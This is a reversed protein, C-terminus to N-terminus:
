ELVKPQDLYAQISTSLVNVLDTTRVLHDKVLIKWVDFCLNVLFPNQTFTRQPASPCQPSRKKPKKRRRRKSPHAGMVLHHCFYPLRIGTDLCRSDVTSAHSARHCEM